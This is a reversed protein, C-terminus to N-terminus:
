LVEREDIHVAATTPHNSDMPSSQNRKCLPQAEERKESADRM